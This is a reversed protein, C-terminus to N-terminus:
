GELVKRLAAVVRETDPIASYECIPNFGIPVDERSVLQPPCLFHDWSEPCSTLDSIIMQGVSCSRVDEQVIVLRGTKELSRCVTARDWPVITRLDIIEVSVEGALQATADSAPELCNGWAVLTIQNGAQRIVAQGFPVPKVPSTVQTHQRLRHKPLLVITPDDTHMATWLLGAADEPTGPVVVHLGPVHAFNAENSQSHWNGGGALYAGYPAYIVAPCTWEGKSRWRITSLNQAIQNWAPGIFDVFQIEFVPRMGYCALGAAVGAITAEALPSNFVRDPFATSLGKTIGFVGGKPDEIDEGFFVFRRDSELGDQFVRNIADVMRWKQDGELSPANTKAPTGFLHDANEEPSPDPAREALAYEEDVTRDIEERLEQWQESTLEGNAILEGAALDIPDRREIEALEEAVRYSRHDDSSTHSCLRDLECHLITPGHGQRAKAVAPLAAALINEPNRADLTTIGVDEHILKLRLPNMRDTRTSIGYGNDEVVFVVPLKREVAFAVAEFFEGQRTSADGITALVVSDKQELKMGWAVGCAPLMSAGTPTLATWIKRKPCSAHAPMQRGASSSNRKGFYALALEYNTMGRALLLARDRYHSFLYDGDEMAMSLAALAEHGTGSVQFWGRGQRILVGERRDGERSLYMLKLLGLRTSRSTTLQPQSASLDLDSGNLPM